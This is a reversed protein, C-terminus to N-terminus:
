IKDPISLRKGEPILSSGKLFLFADREMDRAKKLAAIADQAHESVDEKQPFHKLNEHLHAVITEYKRALDELEKLSDGTHYKRVQNLYGLAARRADLLAAYNWSNAFKDKIRGERIHGIWCDYAALGSYQMHFWSTDGQPMRERFAYAAAIAFSDAVRDAIDPKDPLRELVHCGAPSGSLAISEQKGNHANVIFKGDEHGVIVGWHPFPHCKLVPMGRALSERIEDVTDEDPEEAHWSHTGGKKQLGIPSLTHYQFYHGQGDDPPEIFVGDEHIMLRFAHGSVGMLFDYDYPEGLIQMANELAAYMSHARSPRSLDAVNGQAIPKVNKLTVEEKSEAVAEGVTGRKAKWSSGAKEIKCIFKSKADLAWLNKQDVAIANFGFPREGWDLTEGKMNTKVLLPWFWGVCWVDRGDSAMYDPMSAAVYTHKPAADPNDLDLLWVGGQWGDGLVLERGVKVVSLIDDSGRLTMERVLEGTEMSLQYVPSEGTGDTPTTTYFFGESAAFGYGFGKRALKITNRVSGDDLSVQIASGTAEDLVWLEGEHFTINRPKECPAHISRSIQWDAPLPKLKRLPELLDHRVLMRLTLDTVDNGYCDQWGGDANQSRLLMPVLKAAIRGALPHTVTGGMRVIEWPYSLGLTKSTGAPGMAKELWTLIELIEDDVDGAERSEWLLGLQSSPMGPDHEEQMAKITSQAFRKMVPASGAPASRGGLALAAIARVADRPEDVPDATLERELADLARQVEARKPSCGMRLVELLKEATFVITKQQQDEPNRLSGDPKQGSFVAQFHQELRSRDGDRPKGLVQVRVAAAQPSDSKEVSTMPDYRWGYRFDTTAAVKAEKTTATGTSPSQTRAQPIFVLAALIIVSVSAVGIKLPRSQRDDLIRRVRQKLGTGNEAIGVYGPAVLRRATRDKLVQLLSAGYVKAEGHLHHIVLDDVVVERLLRLRAVTLWVLPHFWYASLLIVQLWNTWLDFRKLHCLEHLFVARLEGQSLRDITRQPLVIKPRLLGFVVPSNLDATTLLQIRRKIGCEGCADRFKELLRRDLVPQSRKIWIHVRTYQYLLLSLVALMGLLWIIGAVAPITEVQEPGEPPAVPGYQRVMAPRPWMARAFIEEVGLADVPQVVVPARERPSPLLQGLGTYFGVSPPLCLKVLVLCWLLYHGRPSIKRVLFSLAVIAAVLLCLQWTMPVMWSWWADLWRNVWPIGTM